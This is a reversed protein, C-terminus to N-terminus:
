DGDKKGGNEQFYCSSNTYWAVAVLRLWFEKKENEEIETGRECSFIEM